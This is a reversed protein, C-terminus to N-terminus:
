DIAEIKLVEYKVMGAPVEIEAQEGVKKGMLGKAIPSSVSIKGKMIDMEEPEVLSFIVERNRNLDQLTIKTFVKVSGLDIEHEDVIRATALRDELKSIKYMLMSLEERASHYEANESLDGMDRAAAIRDRIAPQQVERMDRLEEQLKNYVKRTIVTSM